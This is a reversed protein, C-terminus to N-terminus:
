VTQAIRQHLWANAAKHEGQALRGLQSYYFNRVNEFTPETDHVHSWLAGKNNLGLNEFTPLYRNIFLRMRQAHLLLRAISILTDDDIM